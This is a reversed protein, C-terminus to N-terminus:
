SPFWNSNFKQYEPGLLFNINLNTDSPDTDCITAFIMILVLELDINQNLYIKATITTGYSIVNTDVYGIQINNKFISCKTRHFTIFYYDSNIQVSFRKKWFKGIMIFSQNIKEIHYDYNIWGNQKQKIKAIEEEKSNLVVNFEDSRNCIYLTEDYQNKIIAKRLSYELQLTM